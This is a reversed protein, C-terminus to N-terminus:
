AFVWGLIIAVAVGGAVILCLAASIQWNSM